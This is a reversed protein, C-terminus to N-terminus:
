DHCDVIRPTLDGTIEVDISMAFYGDEVLAIASDESGAIVYTTKPEVNNEHYVAYLKM